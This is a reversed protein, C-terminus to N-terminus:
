LPPTSLCRWQEEADHAPNGSSPRSCAQRKAASVQRTQLMMDILCQSKKEREYRHGPLRSRAQCLDEVALRWEREDMRSGLHLFQACIRMVRGRSNQVAALEVRCSEVVPRPLVGAAVAADLTCDNVADQEIRVDAHVGRLKAQCAKFFEGTAQQAVGAQAITAGAMALGTLFVIVHRM